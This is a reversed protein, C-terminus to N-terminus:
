RNPSKEDLELSQETKNRNKKTPKWRQSGRSPVVRNRNPRVTYVVKRPPTTNPIPNSTTTSPVRYTTTPSTTSPSPPPQYKTTPYKTTSVSTTTSKPSTDQFYTTSPPKQTPKTNVTYLETTKVKQKTTTTTTTTNLPHNIGQFFDDPFKIISPVPKPQLQNKNTTGNLTRIDIEFEDEHVGGSEDVNDLTDIDYSHYYNNGNPSSSNTTYKYNNNHSNYKNYPSLPRQHSPITPRPAMTESMPMFQSVNVPLKYDYDDDDYYYESSEVPYPTTTSLKTTARTTSTTTIPKPKPKNTHQVQPGLSKIPIKFNNNLQDQAGPHKNQNNNNNNNYGNDYFYNSNTQVNNNYNYSPQPKVPQPKPPLAKVPEEEYDDYYYEDEPYTEHVPKTTSSSHPKKILTGESTLNMISYIPEVEKFNTTRIGAVFDEFNFNNFTNPVSPKRVFPDIDQTEYVPKPREGGKGKSIVEVNKPKETIYFGPITKSTTSEFSLPRKPKIEVEEVYPSQFNNYITQQQSIGNINKSFLNSPYYNDSYGPTVKEPAQNLNVPKLKQVPAQPLNQYAFFRDEDDLYPKSTSVPHHKGNYPKNNPNNAFFRGDSPTFYQQKLYKNNPNQTTPQNNYFGGVTSFAIYSSKPTTNPVYNFNLQAQKRDNSLSSSVGSQGKGLHFYSFNDPLGSDDDDLYHQQKQIQYTNLLLPLIDSSQQKKSKGPNGSYSTAHVHPSKDAYQIFPSNQHPRQNYSAAKSSYYVNSPSFPTDPVQHTQFESQWPQTGTQYTTGRLQRASRQVSGYSSSYASDQPYLSPTSSKESFDSGRKERVDKGDGSVGETGESDIQQQEHNDDHNNNLDASVDRKKRDLKKFSSKTDDLDQLNLDSCQTYLM